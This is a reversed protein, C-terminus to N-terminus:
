LPNSLGLVVIIVGFRRSPTFETNTYHFSM